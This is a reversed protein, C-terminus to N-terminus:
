HPLPSYLDYMSNIPHTFHYNPHVFATMLVLIVGAVAMPVQNAVNFALSGLTASALELVAPNGTHTNMVSAM